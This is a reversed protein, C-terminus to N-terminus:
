WQPPIVVRDLQPELELENFAPVKGELCMQAVLARIESDLQDKM